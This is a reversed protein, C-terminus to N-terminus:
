AGKVACDYPRGDDRTRCGAAVVRWGEAFLALFATDGGVRARAEEGYARVDVKGERARPLQELLARACPAGTSAELEAVTAPAVLGCAAAGDGAALAAYFDEAAGGADDAATSCAPALLTGGLAAVGVAARRGFRSM